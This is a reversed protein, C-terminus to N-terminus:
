KDKKGEGDRKGKKYEGEYRDGNSWFFKGIQYDFLLNSNFFPKVIFSKNRVNAMNCEMRGNEKM